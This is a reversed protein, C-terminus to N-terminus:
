RRAHRRRVSAAVGERLEALTRPAPTEDFLVERVDSLSHAGVRRVVVTYGEAHM